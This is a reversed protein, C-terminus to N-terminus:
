VSDERWRPMKKVSKRKVKKKERMTRERGDFMEVTTGSGGEVKTEGSPTM